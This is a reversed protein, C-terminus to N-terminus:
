FFRKDMEDTTLTPGEDLTVYALAYPSGGRRMISYSYIAGVGKSELWHTEDSFCFPCISRPYFHIKGCANCGFGDKCPRM